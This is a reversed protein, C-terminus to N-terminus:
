FSPYAHKPNLSQTELEVELGPSYRHTPRNPLMAVPKTRLSRDAFGVTRRTGLAWLDDEPPLAPSPVSARFSSAKLVISLGSVPCTQFGLLYACSAPKTEASPKGTTSNSAGCGPSFIRSRPQPSPVSANFSM